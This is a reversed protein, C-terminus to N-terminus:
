GLTYELQVIDGRRSMRVFSLDVNCEDEVIKLGDGIMKPEINIYVRDLLGEDIFSYNSEPGGTVLLSNSDNEKAVDLCEEPSNCVVYGDRIDYQENKTLVIRTADVNEYSHNDWEIVKEYTKRGVVFSGSQEALEVFRKWNESSLFSESRDKTAVMGDLSASMYLNVRM